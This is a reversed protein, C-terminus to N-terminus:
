GDPKQEKVNTSPSNKIDSYNCKWDMVMTDSSVGDGLHDIRCRNGNKSFKWTGNITWRRPFDNVSIKNDGASKIPSSNLNRQQELIWVGDKKFVKFPVGSYHGVREYSIEAGEMLAMIIEFKITEKSYSVNPFVVFLGLAFLFMVSTHALKSM